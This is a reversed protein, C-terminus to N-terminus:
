AFKLWPEQWVEKNNLCQGIKGVGITLFYKCVYHFACLSILVNKVFTHEESSISFSTLRNFRDLMTLDFNKKACWNHKNRLMTQFNYYSTKMASNEQRSCNPILIWYTGHSGDLINQSQMTTLASHTPAPPWFFPIRGNGHIGHLFIYHHVNRSRLTM